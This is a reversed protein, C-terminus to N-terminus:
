IEITETYGKIPERRIFTIWAKMVLILKNKDVIWTEAEDLVFEFEIYKDNVYAFYNESSINAEKIASDELINLTDEFLEINSSADGNGSDAIYTAVIDSENDDSINMISPCLIDNDPYTFYSFEFKM